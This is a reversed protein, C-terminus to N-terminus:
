PRSTSSTACCRRAGSGGHHQLDVEPTAGRLIQHLRRLGSGRAQPRARRSQRRERQVAVQARQLDAGREHRAREHHRAARTRLDAPRLRVPREHPRAMPVATVPRSPSKPPPPTGAAGRPAKRRGVRTRCPRSTRGPYGFVIHLVGFGIGLIVHTDTAPLVFPSRASCWSCRAWSARDAAHHEAITVTSASLVACGYLLLWTGPLLDISAACAVARRHARAGAFLAPCLCLMFKRVPGLYRAHGSQAAERAMLAGGVLFATAGAFMWIAALAAGVPSGLRGARRAFRHQGHRGRGHGPVALSGSTEISRRIYALTGLAHREIPIPIESQMPAQANKAPSAAFRHRRHQM